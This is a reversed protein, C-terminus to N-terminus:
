AGKLNEEINKERMSAKESQKGQPFVSVGTYQM